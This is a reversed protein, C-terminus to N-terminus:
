ARTSMAHVQVYRRPHPPRHLHALRFTPALM